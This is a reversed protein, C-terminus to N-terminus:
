GKYLLQGNHLTFNPYASSGDMKEDMIHVTYPNNAVEKVIEEVWEHVPMSIAHITAYCSLADAVRDEVRKKYVIEYDYGM